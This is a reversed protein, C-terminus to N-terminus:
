PVVETTPREEATSTKTSDDLQVALARRADALNSSVTGRSVGLTEAIVAEPLDAVYRLVVAVRQKDPLARVATWVEPYGVPNTDPRRTRGAADLARQESGRRRYSRRLVNLAVRYTWGTPSDMVRVTPWRALARVFAEDTVEAALDRDGCLAVLSAFVRRHERRYWEEFGQGAEDDM